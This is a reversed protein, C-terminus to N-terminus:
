FSYLNKFETLADQSFRLRSAKKVDLEHAFLNTYKPSM